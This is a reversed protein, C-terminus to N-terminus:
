HCRCGQKICDHSSVASVDLTLCVGAICLPRTAVMDKFFLIDAIFETTVGQSSRM